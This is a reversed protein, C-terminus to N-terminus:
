IPITITFEAGLYTENEIKTNVNQAKISGNLRNTIIDYTIHLGLGTGQSQHKTTTYPEFIHEIINTDIGGGNDKFKIIINNHQINTTIFIYRKNKDKKLLIDKTNNFINIFCQLFENQYSNIEIKANLEKIITIHSAEINNKLNSLFMEITDDITFNTQVRDKTSFHQLEEITKSLQQVQNNIMNCTTNFQEDDLMGFEKKMQMGTVGTSIVSLPQRWQHSINIIMDSLSAMKEAELLLKHQQEFNKKDTIDHRIAIYEKINNDEDYQPSIDAIVWYYDGDAKLNKVEGTWTKGSMITNWMDEFAEQPMDPHRVISHPKGILYDRSYGSITCFADSVETIIGKLDTKSFIVYKSIIDLSKELESKINNGM